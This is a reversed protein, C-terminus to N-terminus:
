FAAGKATRTVVTFDTRWGTYKEHGADAIVISSGPALLEAIRARTASDIGIRGISEYANAPLREDIGFIGRTVPSLENDLTLALWNTAGAAADFRSTTFVHVGLPRRDDGIDVSTEFLPAFGLRVQLVGSKPAPAGTAAQLAAMFAEDIDGGAPALAKDSRFRAIAERTQRGAGGDLPGTYYGAQMLMAQLEAIRERQPRRTILMRLPKRPVDAAVSDDLYAALWLDLARAIRPVPQPLAPHNIPFPAISRTNIIVHEGVGTMDFLGKAFEGPMRVCGHSAPQDPVDDSEHLAIGTWTLRQMWPMPSNSYQNSRHFKSKHLISFIGTPTDNGPKGSSIPSNAVEEQGRFVRMRQEDISVVIQLPDGRGIGEAMVPACPQVILALGIAALFNRALVTRM